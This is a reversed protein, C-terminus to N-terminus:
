RVVTLAAPVCHGGDGARHAAARLSRGFAHPAKKSRGPRRFAARLLCPSPERWPATILVSASKVAFGPAAGAHVRAIDAHQEKLHQELWQVLKSGDSM